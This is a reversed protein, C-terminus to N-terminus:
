LFCRERLSNNIMAEFDIRVIYNVKILKYIGRFVTSIKAAERINKKDVTELLVGPITTYLLSAIGCGLAVWLPLIYKDLSQNTSYQVSFGLAIQGIGFGIFVAAEVVVIRFTRKEPSTVDTVYTAGTSLLLALGGCMGSILDGPIFALIPLHFYVVLISNIASAIYGLTCLSLAPKRGMRDSLSGLVIAM